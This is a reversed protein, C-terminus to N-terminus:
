SSPAFGLLGQAQPSDEYEVTLIGRLHAAEDHAQPTTMRGLMQICELLLKAMDRDRPYVKHMDDVAQAVDVAEGSERNGYHYDLMFNIHTIRNEIELVSMGFPGFYEDAPALTTMYVDHPVANVRAIIALRGTRRLRDVVIAANARDQATFGPVNSVANQAAQVFPSAYDYSLHAIPFSPAAARAFAKSRWAADRTLEWARWDAELALSDAQVDHPFDHALADADEDAYRALAEPDGDEADVRDLLAQADRLLTADTSNKQVWLCAERVYWTAADHNTLPDYHMATGMQVTLTALEGYNPDDPRQLSYARGADFITSLYYLQDFYDWGNAQAKDYAAKMQAYLVAPDAELTAGAFRPQFALLAVAALAILKFSARTM